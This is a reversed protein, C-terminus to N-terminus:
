EEEGFQGFLLSVNIRQSLYDSRFRFTDTKHFQTSKFIVARNARHPVVFRKAGSQRLFEQVMEESGNLRRMTQIDPAAADWIEMGGSEPDLNAEDPAIYLNVNVNSNDAHTNTGTSLESDYKFAGLYRFAEGALIADFVTQIEEIIQVLLPCAFGDEPAAGLYGAPYIKRWVTSGACFARLKELAPMTLFDDIVVMKPRSQRWTDLMQPTLLGPNLVPGDLRSGEALRFMEAVDPAQGRWLYDRQAKDHKVKHPPQESPPANGRGYVLAARRMYHDFGEAVQGNQSLVAGLHFHAEAFDPKQALAQRYCAIADQTEGQLLLASGLNDLLAADGPREALAQECVTVAAERIQSKLPTFRQDAVGRQAAQKLVLGAEAPNGATLLGKALSFYYLPEASNAELASRLHNLGDDVRGTQVLLVGLHHRVGAHHPHAQILIRYATEAQALRGARHDALANGLANNLASALATERSPSSRSM